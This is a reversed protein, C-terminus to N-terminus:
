SGQSVPPTEGVTGLSALFAEQDALLSPDFSDFDFSSETEANPQVLAEEREKQEREVREKEELVDLEDLTRVGRRIMDAARVRLSKQKSRILMRRNFADQEQLAAAEEAAELREQEQVIFTMDSISPGEVDCKGGRRICESCRKPSSTLAVRCERSHKECYSCSPMIFGSSKVLASTALRRIYKQSRAPPM